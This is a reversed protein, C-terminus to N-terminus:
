PMVIDKMGLPLGAEGERRWSSPTDGNERGPEQNTNSHQATHHQVTRHKHSIMSGRGTDRSRKSQPKRKDRAQRAVGDTENWTATKWNQLPANAVGLEIETRNMGGLATM